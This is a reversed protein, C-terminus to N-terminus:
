QPRPRAVVAVIALAVGVHALIDLISTVGNWRPFAEPWRLPLVVLNMVGYLILGYVPATAWPRQAVVPVRRAALVYAAAMCIAIGFHTIAGLAATALGGDRAVPGIWGSAVGHWPSLPSRGKLVAMATPYVFDVAGGALGALLIRSLQDRLPQSVSQPAAAVTM